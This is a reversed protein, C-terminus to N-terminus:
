QERKDKTLHWCHCVPCEYTRQGFKSGVKNAKNETHFAAKRGCMKYQKIDALLKKVGARM